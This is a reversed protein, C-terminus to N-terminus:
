TSRLRPRVPAAGGPPQNLAEKLSLQARVEMLAQGLLNLGLWKSPDLARPDHEGLGIGWVKDYPSAEVIKTDKTAMLGALLAPNQAFKERCGVAVINLRKAAWIADDYGQVQRGLAKQKGPDSTAMIKCAAREDGFMKAKAFMMFQEVCNFQHGRYTFVVPHWNSLFDGAGHFLTMHETRRM